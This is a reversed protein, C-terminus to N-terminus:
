DLPLVELKWHSGVHLSLYCWAADAARKDMPRVDAPDDCWAGNGPRPYGHHLHHGNSHTLRIIYRV